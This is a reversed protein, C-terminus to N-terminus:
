RTARDGLGVVHERGEGLGEEPGEPGGVTWWGFPCRLIGPGTDQELVRVATRESAAKGPASPGPLSCSGQGDAM